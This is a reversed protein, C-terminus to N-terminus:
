LEGSHPYNLGVNEELPFMPVDKGRPAGGKVKGGSGMSPKGAQGAKGGSHSAPKQGDSEEQGKRKGKRTGLHEAQARRKRNKQASNGKPGSGKPQNRPDKAVGKVNNPDDASQLDMIERQKKAEEVAEERRKTRRQMKGAKKGLRGQDIASEPYSQTKEAQALAIKEQETLDRQTERTRQSDSKEGKKSPDRRANAEREEKARRAKSEIEAKLLQRDANKVSDRLQDLSTITRTNKSPKGTIVNQGRPTHDPSNRNLEPTANLDRYNPANWQHKLNAPMQNQNNQNREDGTLGRGDSKSERLSGRTDMERPRTGRREDRKGSMIKDPYQGTTRGHNAVGKTGQHEDRLREELQRTVENMQHPLLQHGRDSGPATAMTTDFGGPKKDFGGATNDYSFKGNEDKPPPALGRQKLLQLKRVENSFSEEM